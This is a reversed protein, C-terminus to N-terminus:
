DIGQSLGLSHVRFILWLLAWPLEPFQALIRGGPFLESCRRVSSSKLFTPSSARQMLVHAPMGRAQTRLSRKPRTSTKEQSTRHVRTKTGRIAMPMQLMLSINGSNSSSPPARPLIRPASPQAQSLPGQARQPLLLGPHQIDELAYFLMTSEVDRHTRFSMTRM